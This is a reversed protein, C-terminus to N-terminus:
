IVQLIERDYIVKRSTDRKTLAALWKPVSEQPSRADPVRLYMLLYRLADAIHDEQRTDIDDVNKRSMVLNPVTELSHYCRSTFRLFPVGIDPIHLYEKFMVWGPVRNNDGLHLNRLGAEMYIDLVSRMTGYYESNRVKMAPDLVTLYIDDESLGWEVTKRMILEAQQSPVTGSEYVEDFVVAYGDPDVAVFLCAFPNESGYDICRYIKQKSKDLTFSQAPIVHVLSNWESFFLGGMVDWDGDLWMKRKVPDLEKLVRVYNPDNDLIYPNDFVGSPIFLVSNGSEDYYPKGPMMVRHYLDYKKSYRKEVFVPRCKEIFRKKLWTHGIGGPNTTYRKLPKLEPNVTRISGKLAQVWGEEFQNVEEIGLYHFNGGIYKDLDRETECHGMFVLAGSPFSFSQRKESYKAGLPRYVRKAAPIFNTELDKYNKRLILAQYEPYDISRKDIVVRRSLGEGEYHWTRGRLVSDVILSATKGGGRSGGFLIEDVESSLFLRQKLFPNFIYSM